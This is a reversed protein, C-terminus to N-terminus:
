AQKLGATGQLWQMALAVLPPGGSTDMHLPKERPHLRDGIGAKQHGKGSFSISMVLPRPSDRLIDTVVSTFSKPNIAPALPSRM